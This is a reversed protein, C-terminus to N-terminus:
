VYELLGITAILVALLLELVSGTRMIPLGIKKGYPWFLEVGSPNCIDLIIHSAWGLTCFFAWTSGFHYNVLMYVIVLMLLSHTVGRHRLLLPIVPTRHGVTSHTTDMDPLIACIGTVAAATPDGGLATAIAMGAIM